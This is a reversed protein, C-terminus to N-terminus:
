PSLPKIVGTVETIVRYGELARPISHALRADKRALMVRLCPTKQDGLLGLYVGVVGPKAMLEGSHAALVANIDRPPTSANDSTM